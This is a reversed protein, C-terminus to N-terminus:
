CVTTGAGTEDCCQVPPPCTTCAPLAPRANPGIQNAWWTNTTGSRCCEEPEAPQSAVIQSACCVRESGQLALPVPDPVAAECCSVDRVVQPPDACIACGAKKAAVWESSRIQNQGDNYNAPGNAIATMRRAATLTSSDGIPRPAVRKPAAEMKRRLYESQSMRSLTYTPLKPCCADPM